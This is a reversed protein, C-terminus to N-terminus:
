QLYKNLYALAGNLREQKNLLVARSVRHLAIVISLLRARKFLIDVEEQSHTYSSLLIRTQDEGHFFLFSAIDWVPDGVFAEGFDILANLTGDEQILFQKEHLDGHVVSRKNTDVADIIATKYSELRSLLEPAVQAVPHRNLEVGIFPWANSFRDSIGEQSSHRVGHLGSSDDDLKGYGDVQLTHLARLTEGIDACTKSPIEGRKPHTGEIYEDVSWAGESVAINKCTKGGHAFLRMRIKADTVLHVPKDTHIKKIIITEGTSTTAKWVEGASGADIREVGSQVTLGAESAIKNMFPFHTNTKSEPM